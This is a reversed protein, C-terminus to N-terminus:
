ESVRAELKLERERLLKATENIQLMTPREGYLATIDVPEGIVMVLRSWVHPRPKIYVPVIPKKAKMAMLVMGSKFADIKGSGDNVHGEPFMSVLQEAQLHATIERITDISVNEKDIPICHFAEFLRRMRGEFFAKLCIFHHHRYWIATMLYAPDLFGIHNSILLAGGRIRKRANDNEYIWKPRFWILTPIVASLLILDYVLYSPRDHKKRSM